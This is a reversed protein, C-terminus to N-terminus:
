NLNLPADKSLKLISKTNVQSLSLSDSAPLSERQLFWIIFMKAPWSFLESKM